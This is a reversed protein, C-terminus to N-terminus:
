TIQRYISLLHRQFQRHIKNLSTLGQKTTVNLNRIKQGVGIQDFLLLHEIKGVIGNEALLHDRQFQRVVRDCILGFLGDQVVVYGKQTLARQLQKVRIGRSGFMLIDGSQGDITEQKPISPVLNGADRSHKSFAKVLKEDYRNQRYSSGNYTRAFATWDEEQIAKVLGAKEIYRAMLRVQGVVGSRAEAVLADVSGYGLWKWHAGMVQGIGWSTSSLAATRNIQIARNLLKWRHVQSRPNKVAGAKPDSLRQQRALLRADGELYRDFYHGEFRIIPEPRGNIKASMRGDSEVECIALLSAAPINLEIAIKRVQTKTEEDFM